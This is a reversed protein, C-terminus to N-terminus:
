TRRGWIVVGGGLSLRRAQVDEIGAERWLELVRALPYRAYFGRISPGLFRGVEHWGPSLVRGAAPLGLRVYLEWPPRWLGRPVAFELSAITGGVRVVRALEKLTAAPDDVYRLLYTFTLADFSADAFPMDEARGEVLEVDEGLRRRAEALMEPSQDLGVVTCGHRRILERAVAGTGTAVDLVRDGPGAVIRSVLFRRWRPDQGFSLLAAYRDYTPGLPAFLSRASVAM